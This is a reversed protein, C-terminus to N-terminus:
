TTRLCTCNQHAGNNWGDSVYWFGRNIKDFDDVFSKGSAQQASAPLASACAAAITILSLCLKRAHAIQTTM